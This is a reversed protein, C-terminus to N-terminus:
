LNVVNVPRGALFAELNAVVQRMLRARAARTAWAIHPTVVCNQAALLPNEPSPPEVALVDLGAGALRGDNLADALDQEVVLPGRSTNILLATPKMWSLTRANVLGCTEATLPCHLSLVDSQRFVTELDAAEVGTGPVVAPVSYALVRMGFARGITAVAQGINGYGIIGLTLGEIEMLSHDWFSFDPNRCWRGHRVADAHDGTRHTLEMLLAFTHQAVAPTGYHPVNTVPIGRATAAALDVVNYGTALVGIYRLEPLAEIVKRHLVTKNTL